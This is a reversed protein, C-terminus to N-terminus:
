LIRVPHQQFDSFMLDQEDFGYVDFDNESDDGDEIHVHREEYHQLLEHLDRLQLNCCWFDRCFADEMM